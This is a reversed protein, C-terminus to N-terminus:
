QMKSMKSVAFRQKNGGGLYIPVGYQGVKAFPLLNCVM